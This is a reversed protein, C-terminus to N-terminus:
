LGHVIRAIVGGGDLKNEVFVDGGHLTAVERVFTLGLGSSKKGTAPRQLSYFRDFIKQLAYDPIGPGSDEISLQVKNRVILCTIRIEGQPPSFDIANQLLNVIAQRMLFKEGFVTLCDDIDTSLKLKKKHLSPQLSKAIEGVVSRIRIAEVDKLEKRNELSSLQLLRDIIDEIRASENRINDLFRTRGTPDMDEEMLEAAGKIASLPSKIEHTLSQVYQEIYKKGELADRMEELANGMVLIESQGLPGTIALRPSAVKKGDRVDNAFQTMRRLPWTVWISLLIGLALVVLGAVVGAIIIKRQANVVFLNVSQAPKSVTLSGIIKGKHKVPSAVYLASPNEDDAISRSARAGYRGQLTRAVDIWESYDEGEAANNYSDYIVIGNADTVYVRINIENKVFDYIQAEFEREYAHEFAVALDDVAITDGTLKGSLLSSLLTATDVLSEEMSKLYHPRLDHIVWNVLYFFGAAIIILFGLIIRTRIKM